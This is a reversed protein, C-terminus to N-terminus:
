KEWIEHIMDRIRGSLRNSRLLIGLSLICRLVFLNKPKNRSFYLIRSKNFNAIKQCYRKKIELPGVNNNNQSGGNYHIIGINPNFAISLNYKKVQYQLDTEEYYMFFKPYFGGIENFLQHSIFLDAGSIFNNILYRLSKNNNSYKPTHNIIGLCDKLILWLSPFCFFSEQLTNNPWLLQGGMVGINPNEEMSEYFDHVANTTLLTDSNLFFLYKGSASKAGLNNARGFGLNEHSYIYKIRFDSEFIDKSGDKSDNDVLIIEYNIAFTNKIISDICEKTLQCTNYTVIIISVDM